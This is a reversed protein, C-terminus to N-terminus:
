EKVREWKSSPTLVKRENYRMHACRMFWIWLSVIWLAKPYVEVSLTLFYDLDSFCKLPFRSDEWVFCDLECAGHSWLAIDQSALAWIDPFQCHSCIPQKEFFWMKIRESGKIWYSRRLRLHKPKWWILRYRQNSLSRSIRLNGWQNSINEVQGSHEVPWLVIHSYM